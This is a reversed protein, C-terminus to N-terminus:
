SRKKKLDDNLEAIMRNAKATLGLRDIEAQQAPPLEWRANQQTALIGEVCPRCHPLAEGASVLGLIAPSVWVRVGCLYCFQVSSGVITPHEDVGMCMVITM